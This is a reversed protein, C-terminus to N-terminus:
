KLGKTKTHFYLVVVNFPLFMLTINWAITNSVLFVHSFKNLIYFDVM